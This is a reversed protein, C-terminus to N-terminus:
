KAAQVTIVDPTIIPFKSKMDANTSLDSRRRGSVQGHIPNMIQMQCEPLSSAFSSGSYLFTM